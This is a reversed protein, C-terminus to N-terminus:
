EAHRTLHLNASPFECHHLNLFPIRCVTWKLLWSFYSPHPGLLLACVEKIFGAACAPTLVFMSAPFMFKRLFAAECEEQDTCPKSM